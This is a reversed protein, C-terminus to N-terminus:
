FAFFDETLTRFVKFETLVVQQLKARAKLNRWMSDNPLLSDCTLCSNQTIYNQSHFLCMLFESRIWSLYERYKGIFTSWLLDLLRHTVDSTIQYMATYQYYVLM